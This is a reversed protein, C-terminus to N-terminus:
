VEYPQFSYLSKYRWEYIAVVRPRQVRLLLLSEEIDFYRWITDNSDAIVSNQVSMDKTIYILKFSYNLVVLRSLLSTDFISYNVLEFM